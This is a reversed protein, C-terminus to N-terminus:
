RDDIKNSTINLFNSENHEKKSHSGPTGRYFMRRTWSGDLWEVSLDNYYHMKVKKDIM